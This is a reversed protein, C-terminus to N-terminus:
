RKSTGFARIAEVRIQEATLKPDSRRAHRGRSTSHITAAEVDQRTPAKSCDQRGKKWTQDWTQRFADRQAERLMIRAVHGTEVEWAKRLRPLAHLVSTCRRRVDEDTEVGDLAAHTFLLFMSHDAGLYSETDIGAVQRKRIIITVGHGNLEEIERRTLTYERGSWLHDEYVRPSTPAQYVPVVDGPRAGHTTGSIYLRRWPCLKAYPPNKM